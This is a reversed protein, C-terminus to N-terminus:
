RAEGTTPKGTSGDGCRLRAWSRVPTLKGARADVVECVGRGGGRSVIFKLRRLRKGPGSERSISPIDQAGVAGRNFAGNRMSPESGHCINSLGARVRTGAAILDEDSDFWEVEKHARRWPFFSAVRVDVSSFCRIHWAVQRAESLGIEKSDNV